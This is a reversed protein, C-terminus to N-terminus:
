FQTIHSKYDDTDELINLLFNVYKKLMSNKEVETVFSVDFRFIIENSNRLVEDYNFNFTNLSNIVNEIIEVAMNSTENDPIHFVIYTSFDISDHPNM